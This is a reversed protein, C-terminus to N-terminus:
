DIATPTGSSFFYRDILLWLMAEVEADAIASIKKYLPEIMGDFAMVLKPDLHNGAYGRIIAMAENFPIVEKYPRKSTLADFIDVIAFIRATVPIAEGKLGKLYGNGDFKEHHFEVVDRARELWESKRLIDVGLSVHTRMEDFEEEDLRGPKLLIADPIGIKGVDHLFAGAILDRMQNAPLKAAEALKVAYVSVRYNHIATDSDRKAIASGLVEMLEINGQLLERSFRLVDRNLALIVPYLVVTTMLVAFLVVALTVIVEHRLRDIVEKDILFVGEFFGVVAGAEDRLPVLAQLVTDEGIQYKEYQPEGNNPFAHRSGKLATEIAAYRPNVEEVIKRHDRDYIEVVIFHERLVDAALRRLMVQDQAPNKVLPLSASALRQAEGRALNMLQDDISEIGYLFVGTGMALSVALWAALLRNLIKRNLENM